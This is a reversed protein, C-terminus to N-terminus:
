TAAFKQALHWCILSWEVHSTEANILQLFSLFIDAKPDLKNIQVKMQEITRKNM